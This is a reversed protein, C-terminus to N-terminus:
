NGNVFEDEFAGDQLGRRGEEDNEVASGILKSQIMPLGGTMSVFAGVAGVTASFFVLSLFIYVGERTTMMKKAQQIAVVLPEDAKEEAYCDPSRTAISGVIDLFIKMDCLESEAPCGEVLNTLIRGNYLLRFAFDTTYVSQNTLGVDILEHVEIIFMSAYPAWDTDNWLKPGLSALLPMITTDHGSFLALKPSSFNSGPISDKDVFYYINDMIEAWLPAMSLKAYESDNHKMVFNHKRNNYEELAEFWSTNASGYDNIAEPLTRDTCITTMLCDLIGDESAYGLTRNAFERLEKVSQSNDWAKYEESQLANEKIKKLKPCVDENPDLIDKSRDATHVQIKPFQKTRYFEDAVEEDFLGRLLVQGSMITRQDNDSRLRLHYPDWGKYTYGSLDILRMKEDHDYSNIEYAYAERLIRGNQIEQEYGQLLLQGLQCTGNLENTLGAEPYGLADYHKEFLFFSNDTDWWSASEKDEEEDVQEPSPPAMITTLDCDWVGTDKSDWFGDWCQIHSSWPTRAGHRIVATAHVIRTEGILPDRDRVMPIIRNSM